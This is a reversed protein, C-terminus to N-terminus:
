STSPITTRSDDKLSDQRGNVHISSSSSYTQLQVDIATSHCYGDDKLTLTQKRPGVNIFDSHIMRCGIVLNNDRMFYGRSVQTYFELKSTLNTGVWRTRKDNYYFTRAQVVKSIKDESDIFFKVDALMKENENECGVLNLYVSLQGNDSESEYQGAPFVILTWRSKGIKPCTMEFVQSTISQGIAFRRTHFLFNLLLATCKQTSQDTETIVFDNSQEM